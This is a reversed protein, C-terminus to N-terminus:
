FTAKDIDLMVINIIKDGSSGEWLKRHVGLLQLAGRKDGASIYGPIIPAFGIAALEALITKGEIETQKAQEFSLRHVAERVEANKLLRWGTTAAGNASYGARIAAKTGNFDKLYEMIFKAVRPSAFDLEGAADKKALQTAKVPKAAKVTVPRAM